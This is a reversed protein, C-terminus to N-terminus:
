LGKDEGRPLSPEATPESLDYLLEGVESASAASRAIDSVSVIGVIADSDNVVPLRRIQKEAMLDTVQELDDDPRCTVVERTMCQQVHVQQPDRGAAIVDMCLDRDTVLGIVTPDDKSQIVPIAGADAERMFAAARQTTDGPTCCEVATTMIEQVQM